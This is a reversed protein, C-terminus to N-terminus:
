RILLPYRKQAILNDRTLVRSTENFGLVAVTTRGIPTIGEIEADVFRFHESWVDQRPDFLFVKEITLPDISALDSGKNRNCIICSLCLNTETTQGRHKIAVIHDVQHSYLSDDEHILCYECCGKAREFVLRRLDSPIYISM